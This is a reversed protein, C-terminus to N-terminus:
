SISTAFSSIFRRADESRSTAAGQTGKAERLLGRDKEIVARNVLMSAVYEGVNRNSFIGTVAEVMQGRHAEDMVVGGKELPALREVAWHYLNDISSRLTSSNTTSESYCTATCQKAADSQRKGILVSAQMVGHMQILTGRGRQCGTHSGAPQLQRLGASRLPQLNAGSTNQFTYEHSPRRAAQRHEDSTGAALKGSLQRLRPQTTTAECTQWTKLQNSM